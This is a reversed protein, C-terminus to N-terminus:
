LQYEYIKFVGETTSLYKILTVQATATKHDLGAATLGGTTGAIDMHEGIYAATLNTATMVFTQGPDVNVLVKKTAVASNEAVGCIVETAAACALLGSQLTVLDGKTITEAAVYEQMAGEFNGSLSGYTRM